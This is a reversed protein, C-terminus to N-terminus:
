SQLRSEVKTRWELEAFSLKVLARTELYQRENEKEIRELRVVIGSHGEALLMIQDILGESIIHFQNVIREELHRLKEDQRMEFDVFVKELETRGFGKEVVSKEKKYISFGKIIFTLGEAGRCSHQPKGRSLNLAKFRDIPQRNVRVPTKRGV